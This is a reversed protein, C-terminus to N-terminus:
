FKWEWITYTWDADRAAARAEAEGEKFRNALYSLVKTDDGSGKIHGAAIKQATDRTVTISM